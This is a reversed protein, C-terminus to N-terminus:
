ISLIDEMIFLGRSMVNGAMFRGRDYFTGKSLFDRMRYRGRSPPLVIERCLLRRERFFHMLLIPMNCLLPYCNSLLLLESVICQELPLRSEAIYCSIYHPYRSLVRFLEHLIM